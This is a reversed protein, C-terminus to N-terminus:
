QLEPVVRGENERAYAIILLASMSYSRVGGEVRNSRLFANNVSSGIARGRGQFQAWYRRSDEIDRLVGPLSQGAIEAAAERDLQLLSGLIQRNAFRFASYRSIADTSRSASMYAWFNAESERAVGRQHAKEHALMKPYDLAPVGARVNAEGTYPFYYGAIGLWEYLGTLLPAKAQGYRRATSPIGLEQSAIQWGDRLGQELADLDDPLRTPEGADPVGHIELYAANTADLTQKALQTLEEATVENLPLWDLVDPLAPRAYNFGWLVYFLAVIVGVDQALRLAGAKSANGIQRLGRRVDRIATAGGLIQRLIFAVVLFEGIAIPLLGTMLSLMRGVIPGLASGYAKETVM